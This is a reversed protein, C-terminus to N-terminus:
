VISLKKKDNEKKEVRSYLLVGGITVAGGMIQLPKPVENFLFLAFLAAVAPECLKSASVFSPSLFKLCWSFISHGLLTSCVSLLFGVMVSRMGYGTFALGSAATALGLALACFVYVIYTYITTSMYGRVQRGILTYVSCFIAAALALIDGFLHDGGSSYDSFAILMSGGVTVFITGAAALSVKGKLFLAYGMAVWIVETCSIATSSAVSTMTLSEFWSTFHLALFLGSAACLLVTRRNAGMLEQRCEKKGLVVPTMLVVTWALRYFATVVSPAQSYKVFIASLSIGAIGIVIMILPHKELFKM